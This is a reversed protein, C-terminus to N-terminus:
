VWYVLAAPPSNEATALRLSARCGATRVRIPRAAPAARATPRQVPTHPSSAASGSATGSSSPRPTRSSDTPGAATALTFSTTLAVSRAAAALSARCARSRAEASATRFRTLLWVPESVVHQLGVHQLGHVGRGWLGWPAQRAECTEGAWSGWWGWWGM